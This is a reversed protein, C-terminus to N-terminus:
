EPLSMSRLAEVVRIPNTLEPYMPLSLVTKCHYETEPLLLPQSLNVTKLYANQKHIPIPYHFAYAIGNASLQNIIKERGESRIVFIHYSSISNPNLKQIQFKDHLGAKYIEAIKNRKDNWADLYKLKIRLVAAQLNDLRDNYGLVEHHYKKIQGHDRLMKIKQYLDYDNTCIGGGDGYAGLNKGPYFSFCGIDGWTGLKRGKYMAGHAQCADEIVFLKYRRAIECIIDIQCPAGYLHVPIICKTKPTIASEIKNVDILFTSPDIDVFNCKAGSLAIAEWTAIFSNSVTIVEDGPGIGLSKLSLWLAGTGSNLGLTHKAGLYKAFEEEFQILEEGLIFQTSDLLDLLKSKIEEKIEYYQSKLDLFPINNM